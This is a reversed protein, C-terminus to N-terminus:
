AASLHPQTITGQESVTIIPKLNALEGIAAAARSVRGGRCLFELTDLGAIVRCRDKIAEVKAVIEKATLGQDRLKVAYEAM